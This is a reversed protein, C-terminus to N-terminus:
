KKQYGEPKPKHRTIMQKGVPSSKMSTNRPGQSMVELM